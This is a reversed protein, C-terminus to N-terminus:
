FTEAFEDPLAAPEVAPSAAPAPADPATTVAAAPPMAGTKPQQVAVTKDVGRAANSLAKQLIEAAPNQASAARGAQDQRGVGQVASKAYAEALGHFELTPIEIITGPTEDGENAPEVEDVIGAAALATRTDQVAKMASIEDEADLALQMLDFPQYGSAENSAQWLTLKLPVHRLGKFRREILQLQAMLARYSNLSTSRVEFVSLPNPQGKIQVAMRVQRRCTANGSQAFQCADPGTCAVQQITATGDAAQTHRYADKGNGACVPMHLKDNSFAQYGIRLAKDATNFHLRIPIERIVKRGGEGEATALRQTIPHEALHAVGLDATPAAHHRATVIFENRTGRNGTLAEDPEFGVKIFGEAHPTIAIKDLNM